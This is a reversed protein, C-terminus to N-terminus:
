GFVDASRHFVDFGLRTWMPACHRTAAIVDDPNAHRPGWARQAVWALRPLLLFAADDFSTVSECWLAAEIGAVELGADRIDAQMSPDWHLLDTSPTAEYGPHGLRAALAQQDPRTSNEAVRRDLYLPYSSSVIVPVGDTALRAVDGASNRSAEAFLPIFPHYQEPFDRRAKDADFSDREAIWLQAADTPSLAGARSLEQWGLVRRGRRRVAEAAHHAFAAYSEPPDGFAEDGGIHVFPADFRDTVADLVAGVFDPVGTGDWELYRVTPHPGTAVEVGVPAGITTAVHGPMDVEPVVTVHRAAAYAVIRDLDAATYHGDASAIDYGPVTFRWGQVDTLHLHLVNLRHVALLDVIREVEAVTFFRRAVDLSLGRWAFRPHDDVTLAPVGGDIIAAAVTVVGRFAAEASAATLVLVGADDVGLRYAESAGARDGPRPDIGAAAPAAIPARVVRLDPDEHDLAVGHAFASRTLADLAEIDLGTLDGNVHLVGGRLRRSTATSAQRVPLPLGMVHRGSLHTGGDIPLVTSDHMLGTTRKAFLRFAPESPLLTVGM